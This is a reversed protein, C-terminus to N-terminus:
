KSQVVVTDSTYTFVSTILPILPGNVGYRM